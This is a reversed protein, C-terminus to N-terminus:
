SVVITYLSTVRLSLEGFFAKGSYFFGYAIEDMIKGNDTCCLM